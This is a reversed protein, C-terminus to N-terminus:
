PSVRRPLRSLADIAVAVPRVLLRLGEVATVEVTAGAAIREGVATASWLEGEVFVLGDPDLAQRAQGRAGILGERGTVVPRHHSRFVAGLVIGFFSSLVITMLAIATPAVQFFPAGEPTNFLIASGLLFAVIAGATLVGHTPAVLDLAFLAMAFGILLLGALNVPLTGVGYLGLLLALGGVVGPFVAGPSALEYILALSGLSILLYAITPDTISHLLAEQPQMDVREVPLGATRLAIEGAVTSVSSGDLAQLLSPLDPAVHEVVGLDLADQAPANAAERVAREAWEANRGRAAALGKVYAVADNVVKNRMEESMKQEGGEGISVPTASGINTNPAMAAVHASYTIYMGASGARAGPPAVYVAVPVRSALIRQVIQRMSHDLGGPTDLELVLLRAGNAEAAGIAREVYAAAAPNIIGRLRAVAVHEGEAAYLPPAPSVAALVLWLLTVLQLRAM